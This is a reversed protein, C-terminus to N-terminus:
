SDYENQYAYKGFLFFGIAIPIFILLIISWQLLTNAKAAPLAEQYKVITEYILLLITIPALLMWVLGLQKKLINM